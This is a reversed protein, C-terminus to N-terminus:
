NKKNWKRHNRYYIVWMGLNLPILGWSKSLLIWIIWLCQSFLGILWTKPNNNGALFTMWLTLCSLIWPLIFVVLEKITMGMLYNCFQLAIDSIDIM